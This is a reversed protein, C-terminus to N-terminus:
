QRREEGRPERLKKEKMFLTGQEKRKRKNGTRWRRKGTMDNVMRRRNRRKVKM